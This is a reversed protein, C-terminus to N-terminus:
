RGKFEPKRKELFARAGEKQDETSFCYIFLESEYDLGSALDTEFSKNVAQKALRLILPSKSMILGLIENLVEDLKDRPVVRNVLGLRYAEQADIMQGLYIMEKAKRIGVARPLRQTGGVGPILGVNIETQGFKADESAVIMDCSLALELGGGFAYGKVVAIVPKSLTEITRAVQKALKVYRRAEKPTMDRFIRLDAGASFAKDGAGTLVVARVEEDADADLLATLMEKRTEIDLANMVQPRNITIWAVGNKKEYLINLLQM